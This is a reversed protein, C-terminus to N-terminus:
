DRWCGCGTHWDNNHSVTKCAYHFGPNCGGGRAYANSSASGLQLMTELPKLYGYQESGKSHQFDKAYITVGGAKKTVIISDANTIDIDLEELTQEGGFSVIKSKGIGNFVITHQAGSGLLKTTSIASLTALIAIVGAMCFFLVSMKKISMKNEM